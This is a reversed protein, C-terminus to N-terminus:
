GGTGDTGTGPGFMFDPININTFSTGTLLQVVVNLLLWSALVVAIGILASTITEKAKGAQDKEGGSLIWKIGGWILFLLAIVFAAFLLISIVRSIIDALTITQGCGPVTIGTSKDPCLNTGALVPVANVAMLYNLTVFATLSQLTKKIM